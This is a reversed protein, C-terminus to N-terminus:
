KLRIEISSGRRSSGCPVIAVATGAPKMSAKLGPQYRQKRLEVAGDRWFVLNGHESNGTMPGIDNMKMRLVINHDRRPMQGYAFRNSNAVSRNRQRLRDFDSV